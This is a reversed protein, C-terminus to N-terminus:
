IYLSISGVIIYSLKENPGIDRILTERKETDIAFMYKYRADLTWPGVPHDTMRVTVEMSTNAWIEM